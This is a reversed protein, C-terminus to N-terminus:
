RRRTSTETAKMTAITDPDWFGDAHQAETLVKLLRPFFRHWYGGGLQFMAQSCYFASYHYRDEIHNSNNYPEFKSRLIWDGAQKLTESQHEGALELCVIGAGVMGRSCYREDTTMAYVFGRSTSTSRVASMVSREDMWKKPVNFDANRAARLFMM